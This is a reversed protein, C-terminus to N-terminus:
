ESTEREKWVEYSDKAVTRHHDGPMHWAPVEDIKWYELTIGEDSVRLEGGREECLYAAGVTGHPRWRDPHHHYFEVLEVPEVRLGTEEHTERVAADAPTENPDVYGGPLCWTENDTRRMLLINGDANFIAAGASLKPTVYGVEEAFRERVESPPLDVSMGYYTTVLELIRDYRERDYQNDAYELGNQGIIRLEDLLTFLNM